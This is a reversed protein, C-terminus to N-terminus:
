EPRGVLRFFLILPTSVRVLKSTNRWLIAACVNPFVCVRIICWRLGQLQWVLNSGQNWNNIALFKRKGVLPCVQSTSDLALASLRQSGSNRGGSRGDCKGIHPFGKAWLQQDLVQFEVHVISRCTLKQLFCTIYVYLRYLLVYVTYQTLYM